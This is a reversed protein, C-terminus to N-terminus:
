RGNKRLFEEIAAINDMIQKAKGLGFQLPFKDDPSKKMVLMKNGKFESESVLVGDIASKKEGTKPAEVLPEMENDDENKKKPM